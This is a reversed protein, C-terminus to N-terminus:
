AIGHIFKIVDDLGNRIGLKAANATVERGVSPNELIKEAQDIIAEPKKIYWGAGGHVAFLVNGLEQGRIFTSFIVPKGVSLVEMVTSAGGKTIVCDAINLLDCMFPVFAYVIVNKAGTREVMATVLRKLIRNKGCVVIMIEKRDRKLFSSVLRDASKLGEGGGAVLIIKKGEPIGLRRRAAAIEEATYTREYARSLIFPFAHVRSSDFGYRDIAERRLKESFVVLEMNKEYFWLAHATFPDTVITILPIKPDVRDIAKRAMIILVEHMCVVKTIRNDRFFKALHSIGHISVLYNGFRINMPLETARYFLVYGGEFYNSTLSYGDEFFFRSIKMRESFGNLLFASDTDPYADKLGTSLAKAPAIHGGGTNLYLFAIRQNM